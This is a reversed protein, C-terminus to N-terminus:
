WRRSARGSNTAPSTCVWNTFSLMHAPCGICCRSYPRAPPHLPPLAVHCEFCQQLFEFSPAGLREAHAPRSARSAGRAPCGSRARACRNGARDRCRKELRAQQGGRMAGLHAVLAGGVGLDCAEARDVPTRDRHHRVVEGHEAGRAAILPLFILCTFCTAFSRAHRENKEAFRAPARIGSRIPAAPRAM